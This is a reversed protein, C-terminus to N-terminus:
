ASMLWGHRSPLSQQHATCVSAMAMTVSHGAPTHQDRLNWYSGTSRAVDGEPKGPPKLDGWRAAEEADPSAFMGPM